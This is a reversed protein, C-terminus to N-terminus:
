KSLGPDTNHALVLGHGGGLAWEAGDGNGITSKLELKETLMNALRQEQEIKRHHEEYLISRTNQERVM